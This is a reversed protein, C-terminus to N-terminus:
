FIEYGDEVEEQILGTDECYYASLEDNPVHYIGTKPSIEGLSRFRESPWANVIYDELNARLGRLEAKYKFLEDMEISRPGEPTKRSEDKRIKELAERFRELVRTAEDDLEIFISLKPEEKILSFGSLEGYKLFTIHKLYGSSIACRKLVKNYYDNIIDLINQENIIPKKEFTRMTIDPLIKGYIKEAEPRGKDDVVRIVYIKSGDKHRWNRNCRGSVQIISDLPGVDRFAVDFDLNVGAEVVQTSVLIVKCGNELLEKILNVRRGREKPVINTSLYALIPKSPDKVDDVKNVSSIKVAKEGLKNSIGKYVIKSTKITNLVILASSKGDWKSFFFKVVEEPTMEVDLNSNIVFRNLRRFFKKHDPVIECEGRFIIPRTATMLIIRANSFRTLHTLAKQVVEWYERPIAQVEDLIIISNALNHFKRLSSGRNGIISRVLQEFTTVIVESDWADTLLLMKDLPVEEGQLKDEPFALHHSKLLLDPTIDKFRPSLIEKFVSYTQEIINIFPLSYIIRPKEGNASLVERLRLAVYLGLITKGSGTPATITIIKPLPQRALIKELNKESSSFIEERLKDVPYKQEKFKKKRYSTVLNTQLGSYRRWSKIHKYVKGADRRDADILSSYLLLIKYYNKWETNENWSLCDFYINKVERICKEPENIFELLDELGLEKLENVIIQANKKISDIQRPLNGLSSIMDKLVGLNKLSGHHANVCLFAASSLFPDKLRRHIIWASSIASLKSHASLSKNVSGGHLYRQFFETYKAFDHTKGILRAAEILKGDKM